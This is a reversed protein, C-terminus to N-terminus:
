FTDRITRAEHCNAAKSKVFTVIDREASSYNLKMYTV